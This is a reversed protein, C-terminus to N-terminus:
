VRMGFMGRTSVRLTLDKLWTASIYIGRKGSSPAPNACAPRVGPLKPTQRDDTGGEGRANPNLRGPPTVDKVERGVAVVHTEGDQGDAFFQTIKGNAKKSLHNRAYSSSLSCKQM